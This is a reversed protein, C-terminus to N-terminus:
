AQFDRADHSGYQPAYVITGCQSRLCVARRAQRESPRLFDGGCEKLSKDFYMEIESYLDVTKNLGM